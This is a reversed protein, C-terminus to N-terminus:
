EFYAVRMVEELSTQEKEALRIGQELLTKGGARRYCDRIEDISARAAILSRMERDVAMVEYIGTRGVFGTDHCKPCGEGRVFSRRRDGQYHITELLEDSAYVFTKCSSCVTRILRQAIVGVVSAAIKFPEIEMDALRHIAGACDNTHLTSLVLHGTLAAQVAIQATPVDRIEGIMIIDPDQRLISRLASSFSLSRSEDVQVQNVLEVQYEVPDEVSVVNSHVSKILELASYLTTTKGSGTPGTVLLLGYPKELLLKVRKLMDPPFGLVDLNFTLNEKDLIRLVIKEGLVTPLTSVRFDVERGEVTVQFRGDQPRNHEAIDMKGMVKIRSVLAPHMDRRPRLAEYMQGDVRFRVISFKRSPEIHIDSAGSRIAQVLLYNVLNIIPSGDVMSEVNTLDAEAADSQLQVASEDLDATVTDVEFGEEYCRPLTRQISTRFAFVPRVKLRTIRELEDVHELNQPDAMAVCLTDRIKFLAVADLREAVRRPLLRVAVPDIMGDRLRTAPVGLHNEIFPLITDEQVMGMEVLTEGLRLGKQSGEALAQDLQQPTIIDAGVLQQGLTVRGARSPRPPVPVTEPRREAGASGPASAASAPGAPSPAGAAGTDRRRLPDTEKITSGNM